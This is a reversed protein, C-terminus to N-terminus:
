GCAAGGPNQWRCWWCCCCVALLLLHLSYAGPLVVVLLALCCCYRCSVDGSSKTIFTAPVTINALYKYNAEDDSDPAEMTTLKDEYNVVIVQPRTCHPVHEM